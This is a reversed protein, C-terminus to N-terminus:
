PVDLEDPSIQKEQYCYMSVITSIDRYVLGGKLYDFYGQGKLGYGWTTMPPIYTAGPLSCYGQAVM